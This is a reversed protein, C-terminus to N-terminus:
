ILKLSAPTGFDLVWHSTLSATMVLLPMKAEAPIASSKIAAKALYITGGACVVSHFFGRHNPHLAPELVDPLLAVLSGSATAALSGELTWPESKLHKYIGYAALGVLAGVLMHGSKRAM